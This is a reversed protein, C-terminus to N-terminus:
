KLSLRTFSQPNQCHEVRLRAECKYGAASLKAKSLTQWGNKGKSQYFARYKPDRTRNYKAAKKKQNRERIAELEAQAIPACDKCYTPGYPMLRKCRPCRKMLMLVGEKTTLERRGGAGANGIGACVKGKVSGNYCALLRM